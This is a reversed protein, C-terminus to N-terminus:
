MLVKEATILGSPREGREFLTINHLTEQAIAELANRTFFAQHGTIIVNPFTLMRSFVDDEIVRSSLDRYFLDAEEEYLPIRPRLSRHQLCSSEHGL